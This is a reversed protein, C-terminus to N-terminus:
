IKQKLEKEYAKNAKQNRFFEKVLSCLGSCFHGNVMKLMSDVMKMSVMGETMKAIQRYEPEGM